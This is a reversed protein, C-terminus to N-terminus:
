IQWCRRRPHSFDEWLSDSCYSSILLLLRSDLWGQAGRGTRWSIREWREIPWFKGFDWNVNRDKEGVCRHCRSDVEDLEQGRRFRGRGTIGVFRPFSSRWVGVLTGSCLDVVILVTLYSINLLLYSVIHKFWTRGPLGDKSLFAREISMYRYNVASAAEKVEVVEGRQVQAEADLQNAAKRWKQLSKLLFSMDYNYKEALSSAHSALITPYELAKFPIVKPAALKIALVGWLRAMALHKKFGVDGFKDIWHYSDYNSHYPYVAQSKQSFVIDLSPIGLHDLQM